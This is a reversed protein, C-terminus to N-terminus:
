YWVGLAVSRLIFRLKDKYYNTQLLLKVATERGKEVRLYDTRM